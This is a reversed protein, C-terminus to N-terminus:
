NFKVDPVEILKISPDLFQNTYIREVDFPTELGFYKSVLTCDSQMRAKDMFGLGNLSSEGSMLQM